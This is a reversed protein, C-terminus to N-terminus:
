KVNGLSIGVPGVIFGRMKTNEDAQVLTVHQKISPKTNLEEYVRASLVSIKSSSTDVM